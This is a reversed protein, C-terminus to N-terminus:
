SLPTITCSQDNWSGEYPENGGKNLVFGGCSISIENEYQSSTLIWDCSNFFIIYKKNTSRWLPKGFYFITPDEMYIDNWAQTSNFLFRNFHQKSNDIDIKSLEFGNDVYEKVVKIYEYTANTPSIYDLLNKNRKYEILLNKSGYQQKYFHTNSIERMVGALHFIPKSYYEACTGTAWSFDLEHSLATKYGLKWYCWLVCWMDTAWSQIHHDIPYTNEYDKFLKYLKNSYKEVDCWFTYDINKLLYQAGGSNLENEKVLNEDIEFLNVMKKILDNKPLNPYKDQYRKSCIELYKYGIYSITDSLYAIDDNFFLEFKPLKILFIDSDHYFVNKGLHPFEKFFKKLINPRVSPIYVKDHSPRDDEYFHINPYKKQLELGKLSPQEGANYGFLAYCQDIIGHKSFQYLYIEVQWHFYVTDPQASIFIMNNEKICNLTDLNNM